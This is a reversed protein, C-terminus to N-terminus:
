SAKRFLKLEPRFVLSISTGQGRLTRVEGNLQRALIGVLEMGFSPEKGPSRALHGESGVGDDSYLLEVSDGAPRVVLQIRGTDRGVFAYKISNTLLENVLLTLPLLVEEALDLQAVDVHISIRDHAGFAVLINRSLKELHDRLPGKHSGTARYITEHVLAMSRIRGQAERFHRELQPDGHHGMQIGLLSDVIQLNNKIRHHIERIMVEKEEESVLTESLRMNQRVLELNKAHIQDHQERILENKLKMRRVMRLSYRSTFVLAIALVVLVAVLILLVHNGTRFEALTAEKLANAERLEANANERVDVEHLVQLAAISQAVQAQHLSDDLAKLQQLHALAEGSRGAGLAYEYQLHLAIKASTFSGLQGALEMVLKLHLGAQDMRGIGIMAKTQDVALMFRQDLSGDSGLVRTAKTLFPLADSYKHQALMVRAMQLWVWGQAPVDGRAEAQKMAEEGVRLAMTYQEAQMETDMLFLRHDHILVDDQLPLALALANRAEVIAKDLQGSVRYTMSLDRLDMAMARPDGLSRALDLARLSTRLVDAQLGCAKEAQVKMRLAAHEARLDNTREAEALQEKASALLELPSGAGNSAVITSALGFLLVFALSRFSSFLRIPPSPMRM